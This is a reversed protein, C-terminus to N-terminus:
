EGSIMVFAAWNAPNLNEQLMELQALKFAERRSKQQGLYSYFKIMLEKTAIDEVKWLSIVIDKAGAQLFSRQLGYVGEGNEVKGVGTECASLVVLDTNSLDLNMVDYATVIGDTDFSNNTSKGSQFGPALIIGSHFLFNNKSEENVFVRNSSFFGHTAIHLISPSKVSRLNTENAQQRLLLTIKAPNLKLADIIGNLEQLTGPLSEYDQVRLGEPVNNITKDFVPGMLVVKSFDIHREKTRNVLQQANLLTVLEYKELIFKGEHDRIANLNIQHFVGDASIYIKRKGEVFPVFAKWYNSYSLTDVFNFHLTNKYYSFFRKEMSNGNKLLVLKPFNKTAASTILAAYYVSDTFGISVQKELATANTSLVDYKRFRIIEILAEDDLLSRQVDQWETQNQVAQNKHRIIKELSDIQNELTTLSVGLMRLDALPMQYYNGLQIGKSQIQNIIRTLAPDGTERVAKNRKKTTFFTLSKLLLQNNFMYVLLEPHLESNAISLTTFREFNMKHQSYFQIQEAETLNPFIYNVEKHSLMLSRKFLPTAKDFEHAAWYSIALNDIVDLLTPSSMGYIAEKITLVKEFFTTAKSYEGKLIYTVAMNNMVTAALDTELHNERNLFEYARTFYMFALEYQGDQRYATALNNLAILHTPSNNTATHLGSFKEYLDIAEKKQGLKLYIGAMNNQMILCGSSSYGYSVACRTLSEQYYLLAKDYVKLKEYAYALGNILETILNEDNSTNKVTNYLSLLRKEAVGYLGTEIDILSLEVENANTISKNQSGGLGIEKTLNALRDRGAQYKKQKRLLRGEALQLSHRFSSISPVSIVLARRIIM